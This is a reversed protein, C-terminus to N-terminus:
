LLLCSNVPCIITNGDEEEDKGVLKSWQAEPRWEPYQKPFNERDWYTAFTIRYLVLKDTSCGGGNTTAAANAAAM